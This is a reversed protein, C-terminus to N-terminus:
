IYIRTSGRLWYPPVLKVLGYKDLWVRVRDCRFDATVVMGDKVTQVSVKRNERAIVRVAVEGPVGLLEPWSSKGANPCEDAM